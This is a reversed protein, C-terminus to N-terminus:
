FASTWSTASPRVRSLSKVKVKWKWAHLLFHCGVGTNKGPSDWPRPLRTSKWRHPRVSDSVVSAVWCCCGGMGRNSADLIFCVKGEVLRAEKDAKSFHAALGWKQNCLLSFTGFDTWFHCFNTSLSILVILLVNWINLFSSFLMGDPSLSTFFSM